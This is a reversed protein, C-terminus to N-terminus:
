GGRPLPRRPRWGTLSTCLRGPQGKSLLPGVYLGHQPRRPLRGGFTQDLVVYQGKPGLAVRVAGELKNVRAELARRADADFKLKKHAV